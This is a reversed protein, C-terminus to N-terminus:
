LIYIKGPIIHPPRHAPWNYVERPRTLMLHYIINEAQDTDSCLKPHYNPLVVKCQSSHGGHGDVHQQNGSLAKAAAGLDYQTGREVVTREATTEGHKKSMETGVGTDAMHLEPKKSPGVFSADPKNMQNSYKQQENEGDVVVGAPTGTDTKVITRHVHQDHNFHTRHTAPQQKLSMHETIDENMTDELHTSTSNNWTSDSGMHWTRDASLDRKTYGAAAAAPVANLGPLSKASQSKLNSCTSSKTSDIALEFSFEPFKTDKPTSQSTVKDVKNTCCGLRCCLINLLASCCSQKEKFSTPLNHM